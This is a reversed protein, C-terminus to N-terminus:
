GEAFADPYRVTGSVGELAGPMLELAMFVGPPVDFPAKIGFQGAPLFGFRPYYNAHGPVFNPGGRLANVLRGEAEQGFALLNVEYIPGIDSLCESRVMTM